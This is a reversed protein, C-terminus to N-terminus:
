PLSSGGDVRLQALAPSTAELLLSPALRHARRCNQRDARARNAPTTSFCATSAEAPLDSRGVGSQPAVSAPSASYIAIKARQVHKFPRNHDGIIQKLREIEAANPLICVTQAM